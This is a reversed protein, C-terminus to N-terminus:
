DPSLRSLCVAVPILLTSVQRNVMNCVVWPLKETSVRFLPVFFMHFLVIKGFCLLGRLGELFTQM